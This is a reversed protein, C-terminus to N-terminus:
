GGIQRHRSQFIRGLPEFWIALAILCALSGAYFLMASAFAVRQGLGRPQVPRNRRDLELNM